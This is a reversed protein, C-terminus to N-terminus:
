VPVLISLSPLLFFSLFLFISPSSYSSVLLFFLFPLSSSLFLPLLLFFSSPSDFLFFPLQELGLSLFSFALFSSPFSSFSPLLSSSLFPLFFHFLLPFFIFCFLFSPPEGYQLELQSILPSLLFVFSFSSFIIIIYVYSFFLLLSFDSQHKNIKEKM